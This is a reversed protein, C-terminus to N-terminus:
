FNLMSLVAQSNGWSGSKIAPMKQLTSDIRAQEPALQTRKVYTQEAINKFVMGAQGGGSPVGRPKRIGVFCTYTPDDAPFYGCFSVYYDSYGG